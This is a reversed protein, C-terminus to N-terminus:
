EDGFCKRELLTVQRTLIIKFSSNQVSSSVSSSFCFLLGILFHFFKSSFKTYFSTELKCVAIITYTYGPAGFSEDSAKILSGLCAGALLLILYDTAQLQAERM